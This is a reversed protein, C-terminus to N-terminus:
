AGVSNIPINKQGLFVGPQIEIEFERLSKRQAEAFTKVNQQVEKIDMIVQAPLGKVIEEIEDKSLKFSPPSWNDFKKSYSRLATDCSTRISDIVSAVITPVDAHAEGAAM